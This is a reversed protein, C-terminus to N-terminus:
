DENILECSVTADDEVVTFPIRCSDADGSEGNLGDISGDAVPVGFLQNSAM